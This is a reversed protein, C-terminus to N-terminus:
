LKMATSVSVKTDTSRFRKGFESAAEVFFPGFESPKVEFNEIEFIDRELTKVEDEADIEFAEVDGKIHAELAQVEAKFAKVALGLTEMDFEDTAVGNDMAMDELGHNM